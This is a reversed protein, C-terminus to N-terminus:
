INTIQVSHKKVIVRLFNLIGVKPNFTTRKYIKMNLIVKQIYIYIYIDESITILVVYKTFISVINLTKKTIKHIDFDYLCNDM